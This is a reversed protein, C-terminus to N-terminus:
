LPKLVRPHPRLELYLRLGHVARFQPGCRLLFSQTTANRAQPATASMAIAAATSPAAKTTDGQQRQFATAFVLLLPPRMGVVAGGDRMGATPTAGRTEVDRGFIADGQDVGVLRRCSSSRRHQAVARPRPEEPLRPADEFFIPQAVRAFPAIVHPQQPKFPAVIGM